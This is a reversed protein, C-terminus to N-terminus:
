KNEKIANLACVLGKINGQLVNAFNSIPASLTGVLRALLEDETPIKALEIVKERDIFENQFFGGVIILKENESAFNFAEKAPTIEDEFGFIVALESGLGEVKEALSKNFDELAIRLLTKKSVKFLSNKEKLKNRLEFLDKVGVGKFDVFVMTKQQDIKDKLDNIIEQKQQKTLAM